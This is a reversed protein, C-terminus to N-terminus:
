DLLISAFFKFLENFPAALNLLKLRLFKFGEYGPILSLYRGSPRVRPWDNSFVGLAHLYQPRSNRPPDLAFVVQKSQLINCLFNLFNFGHVCFGAYLAVCHCSYPKIFTGFTFRRPFGALPSLLFFMRTVIPTRTFTM